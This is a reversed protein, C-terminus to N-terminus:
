KGCSRVSDPVMRRGGIEVTVDESYVCSTVLSLCLRETSLWRVLPNNLGVGWCTKFWSAKWGFNCDKSVMQIHSVTTKKNISIASRFSPHSEVTVFETRFFRHIGTMLVFCGEGDSCSASTECLSRSLYVRRSVTLGSSGWAGGAWGSCVSVTDFRLLEM